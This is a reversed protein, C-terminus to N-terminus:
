SKHSKIDTTYRVDRYRLGDARSVQCMPRLNYMVARNEIHSYDGMHTSSSSLLITMSASAHILLMVAANIRNRYDESKKYKEVESKIFEWGSMPQTYPVIAMSVSKTSM